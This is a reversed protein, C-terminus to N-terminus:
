LFEISRRLSTYQKGSYFNDVQEEEDQEEEEEEEEDEDDGEVVQYVSSEIAKKEAAARQKSQGSGHSLSRLYESPKILGGSSAVEFKPPIFRAVGKAEPAPANEANEVNRRRRGKILDPVPNV